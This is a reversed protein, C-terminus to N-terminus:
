GWRGDNLLPVKTMSLQLLENVVARGDNLLSVKILSLRSKENWGM